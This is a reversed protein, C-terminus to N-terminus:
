CEAYHFFNIRLYIYFGVNNENIVEKWLLMTCTIEIVIVNKEEIVFDKLNAYKWIVNEVQDLDMHFHDPDTNLAVTVFIDSGM